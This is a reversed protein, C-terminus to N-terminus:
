HLFADFILILSFGLLLFWTSMRGGEGSHTEPIMEESIVYLMTGGAIALILPLALASIGAALYGLLTGFIEIVGTLSAILFARTRKMGVGIMSTAVILGEPLNQLAIALAILIGGGSGDGVLGVGAAIGEPLNHLAIASVFLLVRRTRESSDQACDGTDKLSTAHHPPASKKSRGGGEDTMHATKKMGSPQLPPLSDLLNVVGAGLMLGFIVVFIRLGRGFEMSPLILGIFSAALMVGAAFSLVADCFLKTTRGFILGIAGGLVTAGGVGLATFIVSDM